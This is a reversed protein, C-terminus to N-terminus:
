VNSHVEIKGTIMNYKLRQKGSVTYAGEMLEHALDAHELNLSIAQNDKLRNKLKTHENVEAYIVSGDLVYDERKRKKCHHAWIAFCIMIIVVVSIVPIVYAAYEINIEVSYNANYKIDDITNYAECIYVGSNNQIVDEIIYINSSSLINRTNEQRFWKYTPEPNGDAKCRLTITPTKQDYQAQNPQKTINIHRVSYSVNLPETEVFMGLVDAQSAEFCRFKAKYHDSSIQVTLNSTGRFSCLDPIQEVVTTKNYYMKPEEHQPIIQWVFRGPPKGIKGTCTFQVTEGERFSPVSKETSESHTSTVTDTQLTYFSSKGNQKTSFFMNNRDNTFSASSNDQKEIRISAIVVYSISNPMSPFAKVLISTSNSEDIIVVNFENMYTFTCIYDKEDECKLNDFTM